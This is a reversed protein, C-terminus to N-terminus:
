EEALDYSEPHVMTADLPQYTVENSKEENQYINIFGACQEFVQPNIGNVSMLDKRSQFHGIEARRLLLNKATTSNLGSVKELLEQSATNVDVGVYSVCERVVLDLAKDLDKENISHQYM